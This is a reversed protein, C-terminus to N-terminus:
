LEGEFYSEAVVPPTPPTHSLTKLKPKGELEAVGGVELTQRLPLTAKLRYKGYGSKEIVDSETLIELARDVTRGAGFTKRQVEGDTQRLIKLINQLADDRPLTTPLTRAGAEGKLELRIVRPDGCSDLEFHLHTLFPPFKAANAKDISWRVNDGEEELTVTVRAIARKQQGGGAMPVFEGGGARASKNTHDLILIAAGARRVGELGGRLARVVDRNNNSDGEMFQNLSDIIVVDIRENRVTTELVNGLHELNTRQEDEFQCVEDLPSWYLFNEPLGELGVGRMAAILTQATWTWGGDIDLYLVKHPKGISMGAFDRGVCLCGALIFSHVSKSVGPQGALITIAGRALLGRVLWEVAKIPPTDAGSFFRLLTPTEVKPEFVTAGKM